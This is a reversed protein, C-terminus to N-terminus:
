DFGAAIDAQHFGTIGHDFGSIYLEYFGDADTTCEDGRDNATIDAADLCGDFCSFFGGFADAIEDSRVDDSAWRGFEQLEESGLGFRM